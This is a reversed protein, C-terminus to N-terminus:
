KYSRQLNKIDKNPNKLKQSNKDTKTDKKVRAAIVCNKNHPEEVTRIYLASASSVVQQLPVCAVSNNTQLWGDSSQFAANGFLFLCLLQFLAASFIYM